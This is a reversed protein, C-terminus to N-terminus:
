VLSRSSDDSEDRRVVERRCTSTGIVNDLLKWSSMKMTFSSYKKSKKFRPLGVKRPKGKKLNDFFNQYGQEIRMVMDQASQLPITQWYTFLKGYSKAKRGTPKHAQQKGMRLKGIHSQM